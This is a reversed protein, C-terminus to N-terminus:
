ILNLIHRAPNNSYVQPVVNGGLTNEVHIYTKVLLNTM